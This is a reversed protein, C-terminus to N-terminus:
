EILYITKRSHQYAISCNYTIIPAVYCKFLFTKKIDSLYKIGKIILNSKKFVNQAHLDFRLYPDIIVGLDKYQACEQIIESQM